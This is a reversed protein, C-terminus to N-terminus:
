NVYSLFSSVIGSRDYINCCWGELTTVTLIETQQSVSTPTTKALKELFFSPRMPEQSKAM